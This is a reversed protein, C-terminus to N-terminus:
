MSATELKDKCQLAITRLEQYQGHLRADTYRCWQDKNDSLLLQIMETASIEVAKPVYLEAIDYSEDVWSNRRSEKGSVFLDPSRGFAENVKRLVYDGWTSNNGVGIDPLPYIEVADGFILQLVEKRKEFTYPNKLTGSEQSSGVMIGVRECLNLAQSIMDVHGLHLVQFRGVIIGLSYPKKEM